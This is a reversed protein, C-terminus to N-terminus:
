DAPQNIKIAQIHGILSLAGFIICAVLLPSACHLLTLHDPLYTYKEHLVWSTQPDFILMFATVIVQLVMKIKGFKNAGVKSLTFKRALWWKDPSLKVVLYKFTAIVLLIGDIGIIPYILYRYYNEKIAWLFCLFCAANVLKDALPDYFAGEKSAQNRVRALTGDLADLLAAFLYITGCTKFSHQWMLIIIPIVLVCRLATICNPTIFWPIWFFFQYLVKDHAKIQPGNDVLIASNQSM